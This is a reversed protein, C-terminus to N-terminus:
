VWDSYQNRQSFRLAVGHVVGQDLYVGLDPAVRFSFEWANLHLIGTM